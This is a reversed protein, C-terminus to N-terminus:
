FTHLLVTRQITDPVEAECIYGQDETCGLRRASMM